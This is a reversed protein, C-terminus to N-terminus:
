IFFELVEIINERVKELINGLAMYKELLDGKSWWWREGFSGAGGEVRLILRGM